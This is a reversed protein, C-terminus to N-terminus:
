APVKADFLFVRCFGPEIEADRAISVGQMHKDDTIIGAPKKLFDPIAKIRGDVDGRMKLPVSIQVNFPGDFLPFGGVPKSLWAFNLAAISWRKYHKTRVRGKGPVNRFLSNVSPPLPLNLVLAKM